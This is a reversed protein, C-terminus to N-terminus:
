RSEGERAVCDIGELVLAPVQEVPVMLHSLLMGAGGGTLLCRPICGCQKALREHQLQIAGSMAAVIGSQVADATNQPFAQWQGDVGEIQATGQRLSRQMLSRGPIILGGLFVGDASLADVTLATGLSVVLTAALNRQRAAILGMWRDVGLQAPNAYTNRVDLFQANATLWRPEIDHQSLLDALQRDRDAGAVSAITCEGGVPVWKALAPLDAYDANGQSEWLGGAVLVWKLRTNGADVLLHRTSM